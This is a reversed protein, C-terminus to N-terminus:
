AGKRVHMFDRLGDATAHRAFEPKRVAEEFAFAGGGKARWRYCVTM